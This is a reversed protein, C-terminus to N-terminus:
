EVELLDGSGAGIMELDISHCTLPVMLMRLGAIGMAIAAPAYCREQPHEHDFADLCSTVAAANIRAISEQYRLAAAFQNASQQLQREMLQQDPTM